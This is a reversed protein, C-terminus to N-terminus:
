FAGRAGGAMLKRGSVSECPVFEWEVKWRGDGNQALDIDGYKCEPCLNNIAAVFTSPPPNAGAGVGWSTVKICRGCLEGGNWQPSNIAVTMLGGPGTPLRNGGCAGRSDQGAGYYTMEGGFADVLAAPAALLALATAALLTTTLPAM